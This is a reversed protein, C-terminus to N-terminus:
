VRRLITSVRMSDGLLHDPFQLAVRRSNRMKIEHVTEQIEYKISFAEEGEGEIKIKEAKKFIPIQQTMIREGSDFEIKIHKM